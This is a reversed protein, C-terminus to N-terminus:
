ESRFYREHSMQLFNSLDHNELYPKALAVFDVKDESNYPAAQITADMVGSLTDKGFNSLTNRIIQAPDPQSRLRLMRYGAVIGRKMILLDIGGLDFISNDDVVPAPAAPLIEKVSEDEKYRAAFKKIQFDQLLYNLHMESGTLRPAQISCWWDMYSRLVSNSMQTDLHKVFADHIRNLTNSDSRLNGKQRRVGFDKLMLDLYNLFDANNWDATDKQKWSEQRRKRKVYKDIVDPEPFDFDVEEPTNENKHKIANLILSRENMDKSM